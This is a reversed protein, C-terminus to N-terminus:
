RNEQKEAMPDNPQRGMKQPHGACRELWSRARARLLHLSLSYLLRGGPKPVEPAVILHRRGDDDVVRCIHLSAREPYCLCHRRVQEGLVLAEAPAVGKGALHEAVEVGVREAIAHQYPTM